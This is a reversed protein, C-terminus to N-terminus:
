MYTGTARRRPGQRGGAPRYPYLVTFQSILFINRYFINKFFIFIFFVGLNPIVSHAATPNCVPDRLTMKVLPPSRHLKIVLVLM